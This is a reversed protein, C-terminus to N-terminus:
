QVAVRAPIPIAAQGVDVQTAAANQIDASPRPLARMEMGQHFTLIAAEHVMVPAQM